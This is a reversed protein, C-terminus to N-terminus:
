TRCPASFFILNKIENFRKCGRITFLFGATLCSPGNGFDSANLKASKPIAVTISRQQFCSDIVCVFIKGLVERYLFAAKSNALLKIGTPM